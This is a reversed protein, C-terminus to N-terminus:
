KLLVMKKVASYEGARLQYFYIGSPLGLGSFKVAYSGSETVENILESVERGLADYVKL